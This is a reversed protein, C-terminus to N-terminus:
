LSSAQEADGGEEEIGQEEEPVARIPSSGRASGSKRSIQLPAALAQLWVSLM